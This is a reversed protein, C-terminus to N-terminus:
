YNLIIASYSPIKYNFTKMSQTNLIKDRGIKSQRWSLRWM